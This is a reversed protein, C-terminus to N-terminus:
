INLNIWYNKMFILAEDLTSFSKIFVDEGMDDYCKAETLLDNEDPIFAIPGIQVSFTPEEEITKYLFPLNM